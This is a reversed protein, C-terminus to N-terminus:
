KKGTLKNVIPTIKDKFIFVGFAVILVTLLSTKRQMSFSNFKRYPKKFGGRYRNATSRGFNRVRNRFGYAMNKIIKLSSSKNQTKAMNYIKNHITGYM